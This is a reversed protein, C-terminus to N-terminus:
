YYRGKLVEPSLNHLVMNNMELKQTLAIKKKFSMTFATHAQDEGNYQSHLLLLYM